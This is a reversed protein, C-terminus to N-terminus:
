SLLGNAGSTFTFSCASTSFPSHSAAQAINQQALAAAAEQQNKVSAAGPTEASSFSCLALMIVALALKKV